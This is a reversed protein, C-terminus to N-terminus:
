SRIMTLVMKFNTLARLAHPQNAPMIVAEGTKVHLPKGAITIEVEGDLVHVLAYPATHESLGQGAAFAFLTVTGTKKDIITRSVISGEQYGVLESLVAARAELPRSDTQKKDSEM